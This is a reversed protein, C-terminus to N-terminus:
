SGAASASKPATPARYSQAAAAYGHDNAAEEAAARPRRRAAGCASGNTQNYNPKGTPVPPIQAFAQMRPANGPPPVGMARSRRRRSGAAGGRAVPVTNLMSMLNAGPPAAQPPAQPSGGRRGGGGGGNM